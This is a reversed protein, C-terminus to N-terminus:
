NPHFKTKLKCFNCACLIVNLFNLDLIYHYFDVNNRLIVYSVITYLVFILNACLIHCYIQLIRCQVWVNVVAISVIIIQEKFVVPSWKVQLNFM